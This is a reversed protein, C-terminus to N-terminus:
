TIVQIQVCHIKEPCMIGDTESWLLWTSWVKILVTDCPLRVCTYLLSYNLNSNEFMVVSFYEIWEDSMVCRVSTKYGSGARQHSFPTTDCAQIKPSASYTVFQDTNSLSNRLIVSLLIVSTSTKAEANELSYWEAIQNAVEHQYGFSKSKHCWVGEGQTLQTPYPCSVLGVRGTVFWTQVKGLWWCYIYNIEFTCNYLIM